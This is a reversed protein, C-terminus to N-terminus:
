RWILIIGTYRTNKGLRILPLKVPMLTEVSSFIVAVFFRTTFKKIRQESFNKQMFYSVIEVPANLASFYASQNSLIILSSSILYLVSNLYSVCNGGMLLTEVLIHEVILDIYNYKFDFNRKWYVKKMGQSEWPNYNNILSIM